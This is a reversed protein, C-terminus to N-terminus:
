SPPATWADDDRDIVYRNFNCIRDATEYDCGWLLDKQVPAPSTGHEKPAMASEEAYIPYESSAAKNSGFLQDLLFLPKVANSRRSTPVSAPLFARISRLSAAALLSAMLSHNTLKM